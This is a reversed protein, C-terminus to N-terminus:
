RILKMREKMQGRFYFYAFIYFPMGLLLYILAGESGYDQGVSKYFQNQNVFSLLLFGLFAFILVLNVILVIMGAAESQIGLFPVVFTMILLLGYLIFAIKSNKSFSNYIEGAFEYSHNDFNGTLQLDEKSLGREELIAIAQNRLGEDYGHQRYNKVVDILKDNDLKKLRESKDM